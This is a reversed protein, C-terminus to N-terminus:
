KKEMLWDDGLEEQIKANILSIFYYHDQLDQLQKEIKNFIEEFYDKSLEPPKTRM